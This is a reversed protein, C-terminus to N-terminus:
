LSGKKQRNPPAPRDRNNLREPSDKTVGNEIVARIAALRHNGDITMPNAALM